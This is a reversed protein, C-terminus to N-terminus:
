INDLASAGRRADERHASRIDWRRLSALPGDASRGDRGDPSTSGTPRVRPLSVPGEGDRVRVAARRSAASRHRRRAGSRVPRRHQRAGRLAALCECLELARDVTEARAFALAGVAVTGGCKSAVGHCSPSMPLPVVPRRIGAPGRSTARRRSARPAVLQRSRADETKRRLRVFRDAACPLRRTGRTSM